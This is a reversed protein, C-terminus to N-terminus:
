RRRRSKSRTRQVKRKASAKKKKAPNRKRRRKVASKFEFKLGAAKLAKRIGRAEAPSKATLTRLKVLVGM